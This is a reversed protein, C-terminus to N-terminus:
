NNMDIWFINKSTPAVKSVHHVVSGDLGREAVLTWNSGEVPTVDICNKVCRWTSGFYRVENNVVYSTSSDYDGLHKSSDVLSQANDKATNAGDTATKALATQAVSNIIATNASETAQNAYDIATNMEIMTSDYEAIRDDFETSFVEVIVKVGASLGENLTITTDNTETYNEKSQQVGGVITRTKNANPEYTFPLTFVTQGETATFTHTKISVSGVGDKGKEAILAWYLDDTYGTPTNGKTTQKAIFAQGNYSVVNNKKYPTTANYEEVYGTNDLLLNMENLTHQRTQESNNRVTESNNRQTEANNRKNEENTRNNEALIRDDESQDRIEEATVRLDEANVRSAESSQRTNEQAVRQNENTVRTQESAQRNSEYEGRSLESNKRNTENAERTNEASVRLSEETQIDTNTQIIDDKAQKANDTLQKLTETVVGNNEETYISHISYYHNGEGKYSFNLQKGINLSNLTVVKNIYDVKFENEKPIGSIIEYWNKNDGTVVVKNFENPIESLIVKGDSNVILTEDISVLPSDSTGFRKNIIISPKGEYFNM